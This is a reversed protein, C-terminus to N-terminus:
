HKTSFQIVYHWVSCHVNIAFDQLVCYYIHCFVHQLFTISYKLFLIVTQYYTLRLLCSVTKLRLAHYTNVKFDMAMFDYYRLEKSNCVTYEAVIAFILKNGLPSLIYVDMRGIILIRFIRPPAVLCSTNRHTPQLGLMAGLNDFLRGIVLHCTKM